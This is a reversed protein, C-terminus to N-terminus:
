RKTEGGSRVKFSGQAILITASGYTCRNLTCSNTDDILKNNRKRNIFPPANKEKLTIEGMIIMEIALDCSAYQVM